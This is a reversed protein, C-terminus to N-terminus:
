CLKFDTGQFFTHKMSAGLHAGSISRWAASVQVRRAFNQIVRVCEERPIARIKAATTAKLDLITQSNNTYM